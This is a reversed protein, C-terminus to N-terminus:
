QSTWWRARWEKGVRREESRITAGSGGSRRQGLQASSPDNFIFGNRDVWSGLFSNEASNPLGSHNEDSIAVVVPCFTERFFLAFVHLAEQGVNFDPYQLNTVAWALHLQM